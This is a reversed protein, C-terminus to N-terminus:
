KNPEMLRRMEDENIQKIGMKLAHALKSGPEKGVVLYSTSQTLRDKTTGGLAKIMSRVEHRSLGELRGTIVFELGALPMEGTAAETELRVGAQKLRQIIRRNEEQGFFALISDTIKPGVAAIELLRDRSAAALDDLRGFERALIEATEGGVHRIGLSFIVRGLPRKKSTKIAALINDVSKEALKELGLLDARKEKLYYLDSVDHVLGEAYLAASLKEGVGRIDMGSRSVFHELRQQIQATCAANACYYMVEDQPRYIGTGCIPCVPRGKEKSFLKDKLSFIKEKGSRKSEIPAVVQPIVDGARQVIVSDGERLDKRRIDDENHLAAQRITVGGISVPELVAYPNLSGTRGVSIEISKLKTTGQVAPFKYAVAWRPERGVDGLGTQQELSDVKVVIGDTEYPLQHRKEAWEEYYGEVEEITSLLRNHPNLKFGLSSLYQLTEWHGPPLPWGEAYGLMYIYGDLARGATVRPDLQRVSGAASNRPNAYLPLGQSARERNLREFSAKPLFVEGRVEFRPPVDGAVSLPISRITKLNHTINEGNLSDGRTAGTTLQGNVYTLAVALGDLKHECVFRVPQGKLLKTIRGHWAYLEDRSFANGLSLLPYPHRVVGFATVPAAGVRQTPSISTILHPHREELAKLERMLEDYEADSVEPSDLVHYRYNHHNIQKRLEAIRDRAPALDKMPFRMSYLVAPNGPM